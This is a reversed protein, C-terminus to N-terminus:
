FTVGTRLGLVLANPLHRSQRAPGAAGGNLNAVSQATPQVLRWPAIQAQYALEVVMEHRRIRRPAGTLLARDFAPKAARDSFRAVGVGPTDDARGDLVAQEFLLAGRGAELSSVAHLNNGLPDQSLGRGHIHLGSALVTGGPLGFVKETDLSVSAQTLGEYVVTRRRGGVPNGSVESAESLSLTVGPVALRGRLGGPDGLLNGRDRLGGTVPAGTSPQGGPSAQELEPTAPLEPEASPAQARAPASVLAAALFARGLASPSPM